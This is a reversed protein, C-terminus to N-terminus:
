GTTEWEDQHGAGEPDNGQGASGKPDVLYYIILTNKEKLKNRITLYILLLWPRKLSNQKLSLLKVLYGFFGNKERTLWPQFFGPNKFFFGWGLPTKTPTITKKPSNKIKWNSFLWFRSFDMSLNM